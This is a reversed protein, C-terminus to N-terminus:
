KINDGIYKKYEESANEIDIAIIEPLDYSHNEKIKRQIKEFNKKKTKISVLKENDNCLEDNWVYLSEIDSIQVCAALKKEILIKAIKKAEDIDKCTTQIICLKM